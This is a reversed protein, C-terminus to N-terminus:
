PQPPDRAAIPAHQARQQRACARRPHASAPTACVLHPRWPRTDGCACVCRTDAYVDLTLTCMYIRHRSLRISHRLACASHTLSHSHTHSLSLSPRGSALRKNMSILSVGERKTAGTYIFSGSGGGMSRGRAMSGYGTLIGFTWGHSSPKGNTELSEIRKPSIQAEHRM